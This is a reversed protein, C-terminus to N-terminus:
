INSASLVASRELWDAYERHPLFKLQKFHDEILKLVEPVAVRSLDRDPSNIGRHQPNLPSWAKLASPGHLQFSATQAAVAVHSPGNSNGIFYDAHALLAAMGAFSTPPALYSDERCLKQAQEVVDKEGPGWLWIILANHRRKLEAALMAYNEIAWRRSSKRHTPSIVVRLRDSSWGPIVSELEGASILDQRKWPLELRIDDGNAGCAKMLRLKSQVIYEDQGGAPEVQSYIMRRSTDFSVRDKAGTALSMIASRPNNMFDIVLDYRAQRLLRLQSLRGLLSDDDKYDIVQNLKPNANLILRGMRHCLFDLQAEPWANRAASICPTTLLIDGLQRLQILLVKKPKAIM